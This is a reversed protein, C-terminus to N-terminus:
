GLEAIALVAILTEYDVYETASGQQCAFGSSERSVPLDVRREFSGNSEAM